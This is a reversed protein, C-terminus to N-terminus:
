LPLVPMHRQARKIEGADEQVGCVCVCEDNGVDLRWKEEDAKLQPITVHNVLATVDALAFLRSPQLAALMILIRLGSPKKDTQRHFLSFPDNFNLLPPLRGGEEKKNRGVGSKGGLTM